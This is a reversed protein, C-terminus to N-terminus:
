SRVSDTFIEYVEIKSSIPASTLHNCLLSEIRDRWDPPLAAGLASLSTMMEPDFGCPNFGLFSRPDNMVNIAAGHYTVWKSVAIGLSAVKKEGVWVGTAQERMEGQLGFDRLLSIIASELKRLFATVDHHSFERKGDLKVIPYIVLQGPGHWTLDGGREIEFYETGPTLQELPMQKERPVGTFQLGRGRTITPPHELFLVTDEIEDRARKEVLEKQFKWATEYPVIPSGHHRLTFFKM